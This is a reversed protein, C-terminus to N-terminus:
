LTEERYFVKDIILWKRDLKVLNFRDIFRFTSYILRLHASGINGDWAHSLIEPRRVQIPAKAVIDLYQQLTWQVLEGVRISRIQADPHFASRLREIDGTSGGQIYNNLTDLISQTEGEEGAKLAVTEM